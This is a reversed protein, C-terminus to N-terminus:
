RQFEEIAKALDIAGKYLAKGIIAGGVGKITSVDKLDNMTTIGGSAIVEHQSVSAMEILGEMNVGQMMGDRSIDTYVVGGLPWDNLAQAISTGTLSSTTTWGDATAHKDKVDIGAIIKEPYKVAMQAALNPEKLLLSGLVIRDVGSDFYADATEMDRIGGGLQIKCKVAKCIKRILDGNKPVGQFAGDLDVIHIIKAGASEWKKAQEVPDDSYVTELDMDGQILRVCKGGKLDIAPLILM